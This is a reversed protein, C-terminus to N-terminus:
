HIPKKISSVSASLETTIGRGEEDALEFKGIRVIKCSDATLYATKQNKTAGKDSTGNCAIVFSSLAIIISYFLPKFNLNKVM